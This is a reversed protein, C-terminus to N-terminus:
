FILVILVVPNVCALTLNSSVTTKYAVESKLDSAKLWEAMQNYTSPSSGGCGFDNTELVLM